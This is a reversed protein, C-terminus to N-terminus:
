QNMSALQYPMLHGAEKKEWKDYGDERPLGEQVAFDGWAEREAEQLPTLAAKLPVLPVNEEPPDPSVSYTKVVATMFRNLMQGQVLDNRAREAKLDSEAQIARKNAEDNQKVLRRYEGKRLWM